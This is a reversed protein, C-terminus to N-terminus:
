PAPARVPQAVRAIYPRGARASSNRSGFNDTLAHCNPCLVMLNSETCNKADGDIHHVNLPTIGTFPNIEGWGCKTCRNDAKAMVYRRIPRKINRQWGNIHGTIKGALWDHVMKDAARRYHEKAASLSSFHDTPIKLTNCIRLLVETQERSTTKYGLKGLAETKTLSQSVAQEIDSRPRSILRTPRPM